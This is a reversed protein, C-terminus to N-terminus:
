DNLIKINAPKGLTGPMAPPANVTGAWHSVDDGVGSQKLYRMIIPRGWPDHKNSANLKDVTSSYTETSPDYNWGGLVNTVPPHDDSHACTVKSNVLKHRVAKLTAGYRRNLAPDHHVDANVLISFLDKLSKTPKSSVPSLTTSM